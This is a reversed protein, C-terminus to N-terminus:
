FGAPLLNYGHNFSVPNLRLRLSTDIRALRAGLDLNMCHDRRELLNLSISHFNYRNVRQDCRACLELM